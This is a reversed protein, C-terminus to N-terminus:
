FIFIFCVFIEATPSIKPSLCIFFYILLFVLIKSSSVHQLPPFILSLLYSINLQHPFSNNCFCNLYLKFLPRFFIPLFGQLYRSSSYELPFFALVFVRPHSCTGHPKSSCAPLLKPPHTLPVAIQFYSIFDSCHQHAPLPPM